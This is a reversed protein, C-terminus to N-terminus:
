LEGPRGIGWRWLKVLQQLGKTQVDDLRLDQDGRVFRCAFRSRLPPDLATGRYTPVPLGLAVVLFRQSVPLLRRCSVTQAFSCWFLFIGHYIDIEVSADSILIYTNRKTCSYRIYLFVDLFQILHPTLNYVFRIDCIIRRLKGWLAFPCPLHAHPDGLGALGTTWHAETVQGLVLILSHRKSSNRICEGRGGKEKEDRLDLFLGAAM